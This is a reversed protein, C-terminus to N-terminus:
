EEDNISPRNTNIKEDCRRLRLRGGPSSLLIEHLQVVVVEAVPSGVRSGPGTRRSREALVLCAASLHREDHFLETIIVMELLREMDAETMVELWTLMAREKVLLGAGRRRTVEPSETGTEEREPWAGRLGRGRCM